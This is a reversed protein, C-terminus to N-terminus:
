KESKGKRWLAKTLLRERLVAERERKLHEGVAQRVRKKVDLPVDKWHWYGKYKMQNDLLKLGLVRFKGSAPMMLDPQLWYEHQDVVYWIRM